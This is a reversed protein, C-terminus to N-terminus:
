VRGRPPVGRISRVVVFSGLLALLWLSIEPEPISLNIGDRYVTAFPVVNFGATVVFTRNNSFTNSGVVVYSQEVSDTEAPAIYANVGLRLGPDENVGHHFNLVLRRLGPGGHSLILSLHNGDGASTSPTYEFDPFRGGAAKLDWTTVQDISSNWEFSGSLTGGDDFAANHLTFGFLAGVVAASLM